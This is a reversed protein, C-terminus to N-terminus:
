RRLPRRLPHRDRRPPHIGHRIRLPAPRHRPCLTTVAMTLGRRLPLRPLRLRPGLRPAHYLLAPALHRHRRPRGPRPDTISHASYVRALLPNSCHLAPTLHTHLVLVDSRFPGALLKVRTCCSIDRGRPGAGGLAYTEGVKEVTADDVYSLCDWLVNGHETRLLIARQGIAFKPM